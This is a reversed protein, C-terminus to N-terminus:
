TGGNRHMGKLQGLVFDCQMKLMYAAKIGAKKPLSEISPKTLTVYYLGNQSPALDGIGYFATSSATFYPIVDYQIGKYANVANTSLEPVLDSKSIEVLKQRLANAGIVKVLKIGMPFGRANKRNAMSVAMANVTSSTLAGSSEDNDWTGAAADELYHDGAFGYSGDSGATASATEIVNAIGMEVFRKGSAPLGGLLEGIKGSRDVKALTETIRVALRFTEIEYTPSYGTPATDYPVPDQDNSQRPLGLEGGISTITGTLNDAQLEQAYQLMMLPLKEERTIYDSISRNLLNASADGIESYIGQREFSLATAM